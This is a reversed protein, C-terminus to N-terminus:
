NVEQECDLFEDMVCSYEPQIEKQERDLFEEMVRSCEPRIELEDM